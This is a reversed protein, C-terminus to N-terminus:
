KRTMSALMKLEQHTLNVKANQAHLYHWEM